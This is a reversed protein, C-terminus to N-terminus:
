LLYPIQSIQKPAPLLYEVTMPLWDVKFLGNPNDQFHKLHLTIRNIIANAPIANGGGDFSFQTARLTNASTVPAGTQYQVEFGFSSHIVQARTPRSGSWGILAGSGFIIFDDTQDSTPAAWTPFVIENTTDPGTSFHLRLAEIFQGGMSSSSVTTYTADNVQAFNAKTWAKAEDGLDVVSVPAYKGTSGM